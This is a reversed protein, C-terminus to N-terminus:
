RPVIRRIASRARRANRRISYSIRDAASPRGYHDPLSDVFPRAWHHFNTDAGRVRGPTLCALYREWAPSEWLHTVYAKTVDIVNTSDYILKLDAEVFTPWFFASPQLVEIERPFQKALRYPLRVSHEDWYVDSGKSRFTRYELLWKRLFPAGAEALIVANCLGTIEGNVCQEGLVVTNNLLKDFSNHVFVDVDLYIGGSDILKELRVVDARHAYHLLPNGFIERPAVIRKLTVLPRTLDWWKGTPEYECYFFVETPKIREVASVLCVHHVLSWPKGDSSLGFCYHLIKPIM